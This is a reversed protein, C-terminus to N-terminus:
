RHASSGLATHDHPSRAQQTRAHPERTARTAETRTPEARDSQPPTCEARTARHICAARRRTSRVCSPHAHPHVSHRRHAAPHVRKAAQGCSPPKGTASMRKTHVRSPAIGPRIVGGSHRACASRVLQRPCHVGAAQAPSHIRDAYFWRESDFRRGGAGCDSVKVVRGPWRSERESTRRARRDGHAPTHVATGVVESRCHTDYARRTRRASRSPARPRLSPRRLPRDVRRTAEPRTYRSHVRAAIRSWRARARPNCASQHFCPTQKRIPFITKM